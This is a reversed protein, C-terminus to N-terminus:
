QNILNELTEKACRRWSFQKARDLGKKILNCKLDNDTLGRQIAKYIEEVDNPNKVYLVAEGAIEPISTVRSTVVPTGCSLAEFVPLGFGEYESLWVLLNAANYLLALDADPFYDKRLIAERGLDNNVQQILSDIEIVPSTHNKGVVLFQYDTLEQAIRAFAKMVEPLHRRNVISGVFVIFKDAIGYNQKIQAVIEDDNIPRMSPGAGLYTVVVKDPKVKYYKLVEEKTYGSPVFIRRAKKASIKSFKKLLIKDFISPWSYLDPRAEYVIDHLTLATKKFYLIPSVYAPCFLVDLGDRYAAWPLILHTFLANSFHGHKLLKIKFNLNTLNLDRPVEKRFYLIFEINKPLGFSDWQQLLNILYRGVGTRQSELNKADIGIKM